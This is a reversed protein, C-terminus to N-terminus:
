VSHFTLEIQISRPLQVVVMPLAYRSTDDDVVTMAVSTKYHIGLLPTLRALVALAALQDLELYYPLAVHLDFVRCPM